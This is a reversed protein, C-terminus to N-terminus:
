ADDFADLAGLQAADGDELRAVAHPHVELDDLARAAAGLDELADHDLALAAARALGEGDALLREADAHLARERQVRRLDLPDLHRGAAVDAAGLEVVQAVPDAAARPHALAAPRAGLLLGVDLARHRGVVRRAGALLLEGLSARRPPRRPRRPPRPRPSVAAASSAGGGLSAAAVLGARPARRRSAGRRPPRSGLRWRRPRRPRAGLAAASSGALLRSSTGRPKARPPPALLLLAGAARQDLQDRDDGDREAEREADLREEDLREADRALRHHRRELDALAHEDVPDACKLSELRPSM